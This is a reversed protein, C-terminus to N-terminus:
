PVDRRDYDAPRTTQEAHVSPSPVTFHGGSHKPCYVFIPGRQWFPVDVGEGCYSCYRTVTVDTV